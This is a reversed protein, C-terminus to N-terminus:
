TQEEVLIERDVVSLLALMRAHCLNNVRLSLVWYMSGTTITSLPEGARELVLVRVMLTLLQRDAPCQEVPPTSARARDM